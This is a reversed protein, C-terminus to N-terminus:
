NLTFIVCNESLDNLYNRQLHWFTNYYMGRANVPTTLVDEEEKYLGMADRDALIGVINAVTTEAGDSARNIKISGPTQASQWFNISSYMGRLSVFKDHYAAFEVQTEMATEFESLIRLRQDEFPTHRTETGDNYLISMDTFRKSYQKIQGAAYRLFGNDIMAGAPTMASADPNVGKYATLLKIERGTNGIEAIYNAMCLRGLNEYSLEIKNQVEGFVAALFGGMASESLFAEKLLKRSITIYLSYPNRSVFLKQAAKPKSVVYHDISEGDTLNYADDEVVDPMSVKIKQLIMGWEFDTLVMDGLKNTYKRYSIITRGIRQVLTNLFAETNGQSSLVANGLQVLGATDVATLQEEGLAQEVVGNVIEYVQNTDM